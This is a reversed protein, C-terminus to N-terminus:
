SSTLANYSGEGKEVRGAVSWISAPNCLTRSPLCRLVSGNHDCLTFLFYCCKTTELWRFTPSKKLVAFDIRNQVACYILYNKDEQEFDELPKWSRRCYLRLEKLHFFLCFFGRHWTPKNSQYSWMWGCDCIIDRVCEYDWFVHQEGFVANWKITKRKEESM